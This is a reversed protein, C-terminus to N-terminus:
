APVLAGAPLGSVGVDAYVVVYAKVEQDGYALAVSIRHHGDVVYYGDAAQVLEVPPLPRGQARAAAVSLWRERIHAHLPAFTRDFDHARNDTGVISAIPVHQVGPLRRAGLSAGPSLDALQRLGWPARTLVAWLRRLIAQQCIRKYHYCAELHARENLERRAVARNHRYSSPERLPLM